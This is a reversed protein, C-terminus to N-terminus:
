TGKSTKQEHYISTVSRSKGMYAIKNLHKVKFLKYGNMNVNLKSM